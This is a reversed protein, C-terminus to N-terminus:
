ASVGVQYLREALVRYDATATARPAYDRLAQKATPAEGARVTHRIVHHVADPYDATLQQQVADAFRSPMKDCVVVATVHMNPNLRAKVLRLTQNLDSVGALDLGGPKCPIIVDDAATIATVTLLGLNPPCDILTVDYPEAEGIAQRLVLDAGPPRMVEFQGVSHFSPVIYLGPVTTPWTAQDLTALNMLVHSLDLRANQEIHDWVPPLWYTASGLQPDCDMLRVRAGAAAFEAGLNVATTTKGQGGKQNTIVYRRPAWARVAQSAPMAQMAQGAATAQEVQVAQAGELVQM